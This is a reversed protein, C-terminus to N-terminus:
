KMWRGQNKLNYYVEKLQANIGKSHPFSEGRICDLEKHIKKNEDVAANMYMLIKCVYAESKTFDKKIKRRLSAKKYCCNLQWFFDNLMRRQFHLISSNSKNNKIEGNQFDSKYRKEYEEPIKSVDGKCVDTFFDIVGQFAEAFDQSLYTELLNEYRQNDAIRVPIMITIFLTVTSVILALLSIISEAM